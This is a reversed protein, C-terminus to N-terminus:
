HIRVMAGAWSYGVGFGVVMVNDGSRIVGQKSASQLAVPITSSVTNGCTEMQLWFKSTPINLENRLQELLFKNAQHFIFHDVQDISGGWKLLLQDIAKPVERLVFSLVERGNMYLNQLSRRSGDPFDRVLATASSTPHRMGGAPVILNHAGSGDTGFVFPGILDTDAEVAGILTAAAADGFLTRVTPDKANLYKTYTDATILLVNRAAGTEILGKAVGLGYVFGSCGQNLDFAGCDTRLGLRHQLLCATAPLFYDPSQSCFLLFDIDSPACSGQAFLQQAAAFGLDSACEDPGAVSRVAIGTRDLIRSASWVGLERELQENTLKGEPFHCSHSKIAAKATPSFKM